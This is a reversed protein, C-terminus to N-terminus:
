RIRFPLSFLLRDVEIFTYVTDELLELLSLPSSLPPGIDLLKLPTRGM